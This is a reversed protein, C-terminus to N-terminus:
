IHRTKQFFAPPVEPGWAWLHDHTGQVNDAPVTNDYLDGDAYHEVRFGDPDWWYDFVQSGLVHRGVGWHPRHTRMMMWEHGMFVTDIDQVEFAVHHVSPVDSKKIPLTHHDCPSTAFVEGPRCLLAATISRSRRTM